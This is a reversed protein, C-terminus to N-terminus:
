NMYYLVHLFAQNEKNMISNLIRHAFIRSFCPIKACKLIKLNRVVPM